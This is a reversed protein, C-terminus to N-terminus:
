LENSNKDKNNLWEQVSGQSIQVPSKRHGSDYVYAKNGERIALLPATDSGSLCLLNPAAGFIFLATSVCVGQQGVSNLQVLSKCLSLLAERESPLPPVKSPIKRTHLAKKAEVKKSTLNYKFTNTLLRCLYLWSDYTTVKFGESHFTIRPRPTDEGNKNKALALLEALSVGEPTTVDYDGEKNIFGELHAVIQEAIHQIKKM